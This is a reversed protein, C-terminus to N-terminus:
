EEGRGVWDLIKGRRFPILNTLWKKQTESLISLSKIFITYQKMDFDELMKVGNNFEVPYQSSIYIILDRAKVKKKEFIGAKVRTKNTYKNLEQENSLMYALKTDDFRFGLSAGNDYIPSFKVGSHLFLLTWNFPHRDQNGILVDFLQLNIFESKMASWYPFKEMFKFGYEILEINKLPSELLEQYGDVLSPLLSGGEEAMMANHEKVFNRLLCGRKGKRIVMEVKMMELGCLTGIKAAILETLIKGLFVKM